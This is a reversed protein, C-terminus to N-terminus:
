LTSSGGIRALGQDLPPCAQALVDVFTKAFAHVDGPWRASVYSGDRVVFAPRADTETDRVLGSTKRRAEPDDAPVDKFDSPAKLARTVEAQVSMFGEPQDPAESYTRYYSPDWFRTIRATRAATRELTWTLATTTRGYLVSNTTGSARSRAALLVGHCIAAVPRHSEFFAAVVRQLTASELYERMGRARHGGPLLLADYAGSAIENWAIPKRYAPDRRMKAYASRAERNARLLLGVLAFTRVIPIWGWPDLGRGSLMMEDAAAPEGDPTAFAVRHGAAVLIKWSVAAETPDFDRRPLPVLVLAM